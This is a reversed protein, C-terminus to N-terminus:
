ILVYPYHLGGLVPHSYISETRQIPRFAPADKDLSWHTRIDNYYRAYTRLIRRLHTEGWIVFHDACERRISGILREAFGNQWPSAPAIPKDRIGMARLRRTVVHRLHLGSRSYRIAPGRELPPKASDARSCIWLLSTRRTTACSPAGDRVQRNMGGSWTNPWRRSPSRLALSLCSATFVRPE